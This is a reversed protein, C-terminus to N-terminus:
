KAGAKSLEEIRSRIQELGADLKQAQQRLQALEQERTIEPREVVATPMPESGGLASQNMLTQQCGPMGGGQFRRRRGGGGQGRGRGGGANGPGQGFFHGMMRNMWGAQQNGACYGGARGSMPGNGMPGTQDGNPM